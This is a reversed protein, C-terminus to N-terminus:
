APLRPLSVPLYFLLGPRHGECRSSLCGGRVRCSQGLRPKGVAFGAQDRQLSVARANSVSWPPYSLCIVQMNHLWINAVHFVLSSLATTLVKLLVIFVTFANKRCICVQFNLGSFVTAESLWGSAANGEELLLCLGLIRVFYLLGPGIQNNLESSM